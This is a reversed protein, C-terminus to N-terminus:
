SLDVANIYNRARDQAGAHELYDALTAAGSECAEFARACEGMSSFDFCVRMRDSNAFWYRGHEDLAALDTIPAYAALTYPVFGDFSYVGSWDEIQIKTGTPTTGRRTIEHHKGNPM